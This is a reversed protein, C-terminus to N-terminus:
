GDFNPDFDSPTWISIDGGPTNVVMWLRDPDVTITQYLHVQWSEHFPHDGQIFLVQGSAFGVILHAAAMGLRIETIPHTRVHMLQSLSVDTPNESLKEAIDREDSAGAAPMSELLGWKGDVRIGLLGYPRQSSYQRYRPDEKSRTTDDILLSVGRPFSDWRMGVLEAGLCLRRLVAEGVRRDQDYGQSVRASHWPSGFDPLKM